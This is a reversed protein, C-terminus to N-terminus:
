PTYFFLFALFHLFIFPWNETFELTKSRHRYVIHCEPNAIIGVGLKPIKRTESEKADRETIQVCLFM